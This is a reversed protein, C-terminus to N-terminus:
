SQALASVKCKLRAEAIRANSPIPMWGKCKLQVCLRELLGRRMWPRKRPLM